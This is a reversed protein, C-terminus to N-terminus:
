VEVACCVCLGCLGEFEALCGVDLLDGDLPREEALHLTQHQEELVVEALIDRPDTINPELPLPRPQALRRIVNKILRRRLGSIM